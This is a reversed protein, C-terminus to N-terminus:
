DEEEGYERDVDERETEDIDGSQDGDYRAFNGSNFEDEDLNGDGNADWEAFRGSKKMGDGFEAESYRGDKDSDWDGDEEALVPTAFALLAATGAATLYTKITM